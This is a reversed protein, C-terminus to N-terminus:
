STILQNGQNLKLDSKASGPTRSELSDYIERNSLFLSVLAKSSSLIKRASFGSFFKKEKKIINMHAYLTQTM